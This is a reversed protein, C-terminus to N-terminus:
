TVTATAPGAEASPVGDENESVAWFDWTGASTTVNTSKVKNATGSVTAVLTATGFGSGSTNRYIKTQFMNASNPNTWGVTAFGAHGTATLSLPTGPAVANTDTSVSETASWAFITGKPGIFAVEVDITTDLAVGSLTLNIRGGVADTHPFRTEIWPGPVSGGADTLRWRVVNTYDNRAPEDFEVDVFYGAGLLEFTLDVNTPASYENEPSVDPIVPANGEDVDEDWDDIDVETGVFDMRIIGGQLLSIRSARNEIVIGNLRSIGNAQVRIYREFMANLGSLRLELSGRVPNRLRYFERKGLRRAQRWQPVWAYSGTAAFKRGRAVQDDVDEFPDTETTTYGADPYTLTVQLYNCNQENPLETPLYFGIIDKGTLTVVPEYFKGAWVLLAGDGREITKGDMSALIAQRTVDPDSETTNWGGCQYRDEVGGGKRAVQEDCVDAADQWMGIVPLIALTYDRQPGWEAFCEWYALQCAPNRTFTWTSPDEPDQDSDRFDWCVVGDVVVSPQPPGYPYKKSYSDADVNRCHLAISAIGDGRATTPWMDPIINSIEDYNTEPNDGNRTLFSIIGSGYRSDTGGEVNGGRDHPASLDVQDEHLYYQVFNSVRHGALAQVKFMDGDGGAEYLMVAGADRARGIIYHVYPVPQQFAFKQDEPKPPKPALLMSVLLGAATILLPAVIGAATAGIFPTLASTLLGVILAGAYAPSASCALWAALGLVVLRNRMLGVM